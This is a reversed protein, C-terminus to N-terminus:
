LAALLCRAPPLVGLHLRDPSVRPVTRGDGAWPACPGLGRLRRPGSTQRAGCSRCCRRLFVGGAAAGATCRGHAGSLLSAEADRRGGRQQSSRAAPRPAVLAAGAPRLRGRGGRGRKGARGWPLDSGDGWRRRAFPGPRRPSGATPDWRSGRVSCPVVVRGASGTPRRALPGGVAAGASRPRSQDPPSGRPQGRGPSARPSLRGPARAAHLRAPVVASPPRAPVVAFVEDLVTCVSAVVAPLGRRSRRAPSRM